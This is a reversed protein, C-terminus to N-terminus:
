QEPEEERAGGVARDRRASEVAAVADTTQPGRGPPVQLYALTKELVERAVPASVRGGYYGLRPNPKRIMVLIAARPDDAPAAGMFAALYADPEYGRRDKYPIQATGTKGLVQHDPLAARKGTGTNVVAVLVRRAMTHAVDRPIVRRVPVAWDWQEVARGDPALIARVVRPRLLVGDNVIACLAAILQIPTVAVEQGIPISTTSYSNWRALPLLIGTSEGPLDIGTRQGCGFARLYRYMTENGVREGIIAMGINSSKAVVEEFTLRGWPHVDHLTRRGSVYLGNHCFIEDELGALGEALAACAVFPKFTSGPEVPDTLVRNRRAAAPALSFHTPDYTPVCALALVEGTRPDMVVGVGSEAEHRSVGAALAEELYSQIVSDITLIVHHGNRPPQSEDALLCLTRRAADHLIKKHGDVGALWKEYGAEIGELGAGDRGVFGLVHAALMGCPYVRHPENVVGLGPRKLDRVAAAQTEDLLRALWVFRGGPRSVIREYVAQPGVGLIPALARAAAAPDDILQPDAFLSPQERTGALVRGRRDLLFGRRATWPREALCQRDLWSVLRPRQTTQLLCVRTALAGLAAFMAALVLMAAPRRFSRARVCSGAM